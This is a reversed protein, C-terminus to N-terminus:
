IPSVHQRRFSLPLSTDTPSVQRRRFSSSSSAHDGSTLTDVHVSSSHAHAELVQSKKRRISAHQVIRKHRLKNDKNAM